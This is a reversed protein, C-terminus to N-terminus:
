RKGEAETRAAHLTRSVLVRTLHRRYAKTAHLDDGPDVAHSAAEAAGEIATDDLASGVLKTAIEPFAIPYPGAGGVGFVARTCRGNADFAVQACAAVIAFDGHRISVEDFASGVRTEKWIPFAVETLCQEPAIVTSMPGDFFDRAVVHQVGASSQLALSADLTTAVLPLEASPDAHVLSGGVTGRNRTQIHGVWALAKRILPVSRALADDTDADVQRVIAGIVAADATVRRERLAAIDNIDILWSPRVLRMAMMPVLSQGGAVLKAADGHQALLACTQTVSGARTYEFPAAKM